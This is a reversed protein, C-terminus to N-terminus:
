SLDIAELWAQAMLGCGAMSPHVGDGTWYVGPAVKCAKDYVKQYPIFVAQFEEALSAAVAQYQQFAPIWKSDVAKIGQVGYPEGIILKVGPLAKLTQELLKRYDDHYTTVTGKYGSSLTHWFDNVGVLISLVGPKLSLCDQDWRAALEFVKNGSVGRNYLQLNKGAAKELLRGGAILAYGSGMAQAANSAANDRQRGSDTVSDGQFLIVENKELKIRSFKEAGLASSIIDPIGTTLVAGLTATMIFKKRGIQSQQM